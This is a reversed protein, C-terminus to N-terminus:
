LKNLVSVISAGGFTAILCLLVSSLIYVVGYVYSGERLLTYTEYSFTSFTTFGGCLGTILFFRWEPSILITKDILRYLLGICFCGIINILLTGVPFVVTVYKSIALQTLLRAISGIFGGIGVILITRV